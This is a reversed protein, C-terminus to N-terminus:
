SREQKRNMFISLELSLIEEVALFHRIDARNFTLLFQLYKHALWISAACLDIQPNDLEGFISVLLRIVLGQPDINADEAGTVIIQPLMYVSSSYLVSNIEVVVLKSYKSQDLLDNIKHIRTTFVSGGPLFILFSVQGCLEKTNTVISHVSLSDFQSLHM